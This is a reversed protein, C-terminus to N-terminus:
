TVNLAISNCVAASLLYPQLRTIEDVVSPQWILSIIILSDAVLSNPSIGSLAIWLVVM